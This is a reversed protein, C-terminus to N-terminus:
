FNGGNWGWDNIGEYTVYVASAPIGLERELLGCIAATMKETDGSSPKGFLKVGVYAGNELKKGAFYLDYNDCIGVMLYSEPKRMLSINKGLESKLVEKKEDTIKKSIKCDIFPM